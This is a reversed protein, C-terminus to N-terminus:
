TYIVKCSIYWQLCDTMNMKVDLGTTRHMQKYLVNMIFALKEMGATASAFM